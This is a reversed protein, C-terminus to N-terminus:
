SGINERPSHLEMGHRLLHKTIIILICVCIGHCTLLHDMSLSNFNSSYIHGASISIEAVTDITKCPNVISGPIFFIFSGSLMSYADSRWGKNRCHDMAFQNTISVLDVMNKLITFIRSEFNRAAPDMCSSGECLYVFTRTFFFCHSSYRCFSQRLYLIDIM